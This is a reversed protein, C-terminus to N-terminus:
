LSFIDRNGSKDSEKTVNLSFFSKLEIYLLTDQVRLMTTYTARLFDGLDM